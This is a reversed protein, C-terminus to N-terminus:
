LSISVTYKKVFDLPHYSMKADRLGPDDMDEERNVTKFGRKEHRLFEHNIVQYAANFELDAKEFHIMLLEGDVDEAVTYAVIHGLVEIAGGLMQPLRDWNGLISRIIGESEMEISNSSSFVKYSDCWKKQFEVIRPILDNDIPLYDYPNQKVFQNIRNRKKVYKNGSLEVLDDISHLYEWSSRNEQVELADKFQERWINLLVDPVLQFRAIHDFRARMIDGWDPRNWVGVPALYHEEPIKGRIWVLDEEEEFAFQYGLAREWCLLV